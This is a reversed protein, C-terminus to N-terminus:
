FQRIKNELSVTAEDILIHKYNLFQTVEDSWVPPNKFLYLRKM